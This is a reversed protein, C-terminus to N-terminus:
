IHVRMVAAQKSANLKRWNIHRSRFKNKLDLFAFFFLKFIWKVGIKILLTSYRLRASLITPLITEVKLETIAHQWM